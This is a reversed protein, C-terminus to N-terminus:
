KKLRIHVVSWRSRWLKSSKRKGSVKNWLKGKEKRRGTQNRRRKVLLLRHLNIKHGVTNTVDPILNASLTTSAEDQCCVKKKISMKQYKKIRCDM